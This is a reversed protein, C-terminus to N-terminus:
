RVGVSELAGRTRGVYGAGFLNVHVLLYYLQYVARRASRYGAALPWAEQYAHRFAPAFGGFLEAMALDVERHGHYVSPDIIAPTGDAMMHVNGSWLDGHLLSPGDDTAPALLEDLRGFLRDFARRDRDGLFGADIAMRLQPELRRDRWFAAWDESPDNEQRLSGIFNGEAAGFREGRHRHLAALERGLREWSGRGPDGPELWELLLWAPSEAASGASAAPGRAVVEPVRVAQAAALAELGRAEAALLADLAEEGGWKLFFTAGDGTRVRATPSICGGGVPATDAIGAETGHVARLASEVARRVEAPVTM